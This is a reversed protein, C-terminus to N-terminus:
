STHPPIGYKKTIAEATKNMAGTKQDEIAHQHKQESDIIAKIAKVNEAIERLLMLADKEFETMPRM